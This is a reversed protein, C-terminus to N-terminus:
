HGISFVTKFYDERARNMDVPEEVYPENKVYKM